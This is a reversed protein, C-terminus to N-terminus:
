EAAIGMRKPGLATIAAVIGSLKERTVDFHTHRQIAAEDMYVSRNIEIQIAHINQSPRGYHQTIYGGAFPANHAVTFGAEAFIDHVADTVWRDASAGFRDGIVIDPKVGNVLPASNLAEKPMSHCDILITLGFRDIQQEILRSLANHYPYYYRQLRNRAEPLSIKGSRIVQGSGVVRPIVGLGASIRPNVGSVKAGHILAPDLEDPSRNLDVYARPVRALLLPAGHIPADSFLEDVFADESSRIAMANLRTTAVFEPPYESGSHPSSFVACSVANEPMKLCYANNSM